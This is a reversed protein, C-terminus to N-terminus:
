NTCEESQRRNFMKYFMRVHEELVKMMEQEKDPHRDCEELLILIPSDYMMALLGPDEDCLIGVAIMRSFLEKHYNHIQVVYRQSYLESLEPSRFQEITMMRRFRSVFEDHLSYSILSQVKEVLVDANINEFTKLDQETNDMHVSIKDTFEDYRRATEEFIANFIDQKGKYHNYLSPAKIGVADAIQEVSVADYGKQSFLRLAEQLIKQKTGM